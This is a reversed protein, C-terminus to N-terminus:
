KRKTFQNPLILKKQQPKYLFPSSMTVKKNVQPKANFERTEVIINRNTNSRAAMLALMFSILRDTNLRPNFKLMEELVMPDKIRTM